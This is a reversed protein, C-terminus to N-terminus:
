RRACDACLRECSDPAISKLKAINMNQLTVSDQDNFTLVVDAGVEHLVPKTGAKTFAEFNIRDSAEFDTIQDRGSGVGFQFVDAGSGGTLLDDGSGGILTDNGDGGRLTDVGAGGDIKNAGLNGTIENNLENGQGTWGNPAEAIVLNEVNAGLVYNGRAIVTDIGQGVQEVIKALSNPVIYTDDGAGGSLTDSGGVADITDNGEGGRLNDAGYTGKL